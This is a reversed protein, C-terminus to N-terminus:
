PGRRGGAAPGIRGSNVMRVYSDARGSGSCRGLGGDALRQAPFGAPAFSNRDPGPRGTGPIGIARDGPPAPGGARRANDGGM